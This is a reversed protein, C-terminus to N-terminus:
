KSMKDLAGYWRATRGSDSTQGGGYHVWILAQFEHTKMSGFQAPHEQRLQRLAQQTIATTDRFMGDGSSLGEKKVAVGRQFISQATVIAGDPNKDKISHEVITRHTTVGERTHTLPLNGAMIRYHWTDNTSSYDRHPNYINSYFSSYKPGSIAQRPTVEGRLVAVGQKVQQTGKSTFYPFPPDTTIQEKSSKLGPKGNQTTKTMWDQLTPHGRLTNMAYLVEVLTSTDLDKTNIKGPKLESTDLGIKGVAKTSKERRWNMMDIHHQGIEIDIPNKVLDALARATEINGNKTGSWLRGASLCATAAVVADMPIGIEKSITKCDEHAVTYWKSDRSGIVAQNPDVKGTKPDIGMALKGAIVMNAVYQERTPGIADWTEKLAAETKDSFKHPTGDEELGEVSFTGDKFVRKNGTSRRGPFLLDLDSASSSAGSMGGSDRSGGTGGSTPPRCSADHCAFEEPSLVLTGDETEVVYGFTLETVVSVGHPVDEVTDIWVTEDKFRIDLPLVM